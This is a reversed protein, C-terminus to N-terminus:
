VKINKLVSYDIFQNGIRERCAKMAFIHVLGCRHKKEKCEKGVLFSVVREEAAPEAGRPVLIVCCAGPGMHAEGSEDRPCSGGEGAGAEEGTGGVSKGFPAPNRCHTMILRSRPMRNLYRCRCCRWRCRRRTRDAAWADFAARTASWVIYEVAADVTGVVTGVVTDDTDDSGISIQSDQSSASRQSDQSSFCEYFYEYFYDDLYSGHSTVDDGKM